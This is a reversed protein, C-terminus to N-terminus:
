YLSWYYESVEDKSVLELGDNEKRLLYFRKLAIEDIIESVSEEYFMAFRKVGKLFKDNLPSKQRNEIPYRACSWTFYDRPKRENSSQDVLFGFMSMTHNVDDGVSGDIGQELFGKVAYSLVKKDQSIVCMQDAFRKLVALQEDSIRATPTAVANAYKSKLCDFINDFVFVSGSERIHNRAKALNYLSTERCFVATNPTVLWKKGIRSRSLTHGAFGCVRDQADKIPFVIRGKMLDYDGYPSLIGAADLNTIEEPPLNKFIDYSDKAYGVEDDEIGREKLFARARPADKLDAVYMKAIFNLTGYLLRTEISTM